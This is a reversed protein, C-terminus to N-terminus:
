GRLYSPVYDRAHQFMALINEIPVDPQINHVAGVVYGGGEGMEEVCREVAQKVDEVSGRPLIHQTDIGGWFVMRDGFQRKLIETTGRVIAECGRNGFSRQGTLYFRKM